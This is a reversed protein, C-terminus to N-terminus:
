TRLMHLSPCNLFCLLCAGMNNSTFVSCIAVYQRGKPRQHFIIDFLLQIGSFTFWGVCVCVALSIVFKFHFLLSPAAQFSSSLFFFCSYLSFIFPASSLPFVSSTPTVYMISGPCSLTSAFLADTPRLQRLLSGRDCPHILSIEYIVSKLLPPSSSSEPQSDTKVRRPETHKACIDFTQRHARLVTSKNANLFLGGACLCFRM